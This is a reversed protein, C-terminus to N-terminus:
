LSAKLKELFEPPLWPAPKVLWKAGKRTTEVLGAIQLDLFIERLRREKLPELLYTPALRNYLTYLEGITTAQHLALLMVKHTPSLSTLMSSLSERELDQKAEEVVHPTVEDLGNVVAHKIAARLLDLAYRADGGRGAAYAAILNLAGGEVASPDDLAEKVRERVIATLENASYPTFYVAQASFSSLVRADVVSRMVDYRNTILVTGLDRTRSLYYLLEDRREDRFAFREAEDIVIICQKPLAAEIDGWLPAFSLGWKRKKLVAEGLAVLTGYATPEAKVYVHEVGVDTLAKRTTVTKGSGVPGYAILRPPPFGAKMVKFEDLFVKLQKDRYVVQSPIHDQELAEPNVLRVYAPLLLGSKLAKVGGAM